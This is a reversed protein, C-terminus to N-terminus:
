HEFHWRGSLRLHQRPMQGTVIDHIKIYNGGLPRENGIKCAVVCAQCGICRDLDISFAYLTM